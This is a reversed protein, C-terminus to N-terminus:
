ATSEIALAWAMARGGIRSRSAIDCLAASRPRAPSLRGSIFAQAVLPAGAGPTLSLTLIAAAAGRELPGGSCWFM